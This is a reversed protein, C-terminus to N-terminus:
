MPKLTYSQIAEKTSQLQVGINSLQQSTFQLRDVLALIISRVDKPLNQIMNDFTEKDIIGITVDTTAVVNASRLSQALLGMEGFVDGEKLTNLIVTKKDVKKSVEVEGEIIVYANNSIIGESIIVDGKAYRQIIPTDKITM